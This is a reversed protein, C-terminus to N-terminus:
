DKYMKFWLGGSGDYNTKFSLKPKQDNIAVKYVAYGENSAGKYLDSDIEPKPKVVSTYDYEKGESSILKFDFNSSVSYKKGSPANILKFSIKALIYEYGSDAPKNFMNAQQVMSWARDGRLIEKITVEATYKDSSSVFDLVQTTNLPAPNDYSYQSSSTTTSGIEVCYKENNWKVPVGLAEGIAKLPMYTNDNILLIPKDSKFLKGNVFVSFDAVQTNFESAFVITFSGLIFGILLGIFVKRM